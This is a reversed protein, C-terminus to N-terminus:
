TNVYCLCVLPESENIKGKKGERNIVKEMLETRTTRPALSHTFSRKYSAPKCKHSSVSISKKTRKGSEEDEDDDNVDDKSLSRVSPLLSKTIAGDDDCAYLIKWDCCYDNQM